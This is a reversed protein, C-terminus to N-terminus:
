LVTYISPLRSPFFSNNGNPSSLPAACRKLRVGCKPLRPSLTSLNVHAGARHETADTERADHSGWCVFVPILVLLCTDM